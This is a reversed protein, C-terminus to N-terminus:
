AFASLNILYVNGRQAALALPYDPLSIREDNDGDLLTIDSCADFRYATVRVELRSTSFSLPILLRPM